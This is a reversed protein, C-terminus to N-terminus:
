GVFGCTNPMHSSVLLCLLFWFHLNWVASSILISDPERSSHLLLEVLPKVSSGLYVDQHNKPLQHKIFRPAQCLQRKSSNQLHHKYKQCAPKALSCSAKLFRICTVAFTPASFLLPLGFMCGTIAQRVAYINHVM